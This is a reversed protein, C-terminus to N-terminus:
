YSSLTDTTPSKEAIRIADTSLSGGTTCYSSLVSSFDVAHDYNLLYSPPTCLCSTYANLYDWLPWIQLSSYDATGRGLYLFM